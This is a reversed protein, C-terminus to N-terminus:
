TRYKQPAGIAQFDLAPFLTVREDVSASYYVV